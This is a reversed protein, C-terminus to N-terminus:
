LKEKFKNYDIQWIRHLGNGFRVPFGNNNNFGMTKLFFVVEVRSLRKTEHETKLTRMLPMMKLILKDDYVVPNSDIYANVDTTTQYPTKMRDIIERVTAM